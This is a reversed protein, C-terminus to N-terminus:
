KDDSDHGEWVEILDDWYRKFGIRIKIMHM